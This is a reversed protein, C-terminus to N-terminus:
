SQFVSSFVAECDIWGFGLYDHVFMRTFSKVSVVSRIKNFKTHCPIIQSRGNPWVHIFGSVSLYNKCLLIMNAM